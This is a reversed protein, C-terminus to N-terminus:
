WRIDPYWLFFIPAIRGEIEDLETHCVGCVSIKILVEMDKPVPVPINVMTLPNRNEKLNSVGNLIMAKM